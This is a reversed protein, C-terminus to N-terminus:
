PQEVMSRLLKVHGLYSDSIYADKPLHLTAINTALLLARQGFNGDKSVFADAGAAMVDEKIKPEVAGSVVVVASHHRKFTRIADLSEQKDTTPFLLDLIVVTYPEKDAMELGSQLDYAEDIKSSIPELYRHLIEVM